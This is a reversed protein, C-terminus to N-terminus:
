NLKIESMSKLSVSSHRKIPAAAASPARTATATKSSPQPIFSVHEERDGHSFSKRYRLGERPARPVLSSQSACRARAADCSQASAVGERSKQVLSSYSVSSPISNPRRLSPRLNSFDFSSFMVLRLEKECDGSSPAGSGKDVAAAKKKGVIKSSSSILKPLLEKKSLPKNSGEDEDDESPYAIERAKDTAASNLTLCRQFPSDLNSDFVKM